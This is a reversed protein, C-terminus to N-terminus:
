HLTTDADGGVWRTFTVELGERTPAAVFPGASAAADAPFPAVRVLRWQGAGARARVILADPWRSVRVTIAHGIWEDVHGVSWDSAGDTVVAGLGLHSDAFEVGAKVWHEADVDVYIGAQDFEGQWDAHFTVEMAAGVTLPAVLAHASDHVFGYATRVWADSGSSATVHLPAAADADQRIHHPPTTWSGASWPITSEPM